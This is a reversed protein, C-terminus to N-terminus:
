KSDGFCYLHGNTRLYLRNGVIAPTAFAKEGFDATHLTRCEPDASLVTLRGEEDILFVKGDAAM